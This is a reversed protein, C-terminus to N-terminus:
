PTFGTIKFALAPSAPLRSPLQIRLTGADRTFNLDGAQGILQVKGIKESGGLAKIELDKSPKGILIAFLETGKTTFRVKDEGFQKWPGLRIDTPSRKGIKEFDMISGVQKLLDGILDRRPGTDKADIQTLKSDWLAVTAPPGM